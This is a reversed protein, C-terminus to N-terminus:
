SCCKKKTKLTKEQTPDRIVITDQKPTFTKTSSENILAKKRILHYIETILQVFAEEVNTSDLASTELFLMGEKEAMRKGEEVSVERLHRLDCKNGVLMVVIQTDVHDRLEKLWREVNDLTSRKTIDYVLLAGFAGRYYAATIAKYREQGATDWIQSKITKGDVNVTKTAFEVGITSKSDLHFENRTFRSLLNSKGVGSDGVLVIKLLYDYDEGGVQFSAMDFLFGKKLHQGTDEKREEEGNMALEELIMEFEKEPSGLRHHDGIRSDILDHLYSVLPELGLREEASIPFIPIDNPMSEIFDQCDALLQNSSDALDMKNLIIASPREVLRPNYLEVERHLIGYTSSIDLGGYGNIDIVYLLVLTREIHRLFDHGLGRNDSAGDVLGPIDACTFRKGDASEVIGLYPHLTTFPYPAVKPKAHSIAGLLSSKGANPFGVLGVDAISKLELELLRHQGSFGEEYYDIPNRRANHYTHNGRGGKGGAAVLIREGDENLDGLFAISNSIREKQDDTSDELLEPQFIAKVITGRPVSIICDKGNAGDRCFRGGPKGHEGQFKKHIKPLTKCDSRAEVYVNGGRGGSGGDPPGSEHDRDRLFSSLGNGGNGGVVTVRIRDIFRSSFFRIGFSNLTNLQNFSNKKVSTERQLCCASGNFVRIKWILNWM